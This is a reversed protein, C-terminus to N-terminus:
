GTASVSQAMQNVALWLNAQSWLLPTHDNPV